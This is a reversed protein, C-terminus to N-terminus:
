KDRNVTGALATTPLYLEHKRANFNEHLAPPGRLLIHGSLPGFKSFRQQSHSYLTSCLIPKRYHSSSNRYVSCNRASPLM